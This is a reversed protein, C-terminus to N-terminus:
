FIKLMVWRFATYLLLPEEKGQLMWTGLGLGSRPQKMGKHFHGAIHMECSSFMNEQSQSREHPVANALEMWATKLVEEKNQTTNSSYLVSWGGLQPHM